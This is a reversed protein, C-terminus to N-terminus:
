KGRNNRQDYEFKTKLILRLNKFDNIYASDVTYMFRNESVQKIIESDLKEWLKYVENLGNVSHVLPTYRDLIEQSRKKNKNISYMCYFMIGIYFLFGLIAYFINM